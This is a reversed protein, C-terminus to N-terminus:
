PIAVKWASEYPRYSGTTRRAPPEPLATTPSMKVLSESCHVLAEEAGAKPSPLAKKPGEPSFGMRM